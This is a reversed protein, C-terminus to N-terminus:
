KVLLDDLTFNNFKYSDINIENIEERNLYKKVMFLVAEGIKVVYQINTEAIRSECEYMYWNQKIEKLKEM